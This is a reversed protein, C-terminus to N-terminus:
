TLVFSDIKDYEILVNFHNNVALTNKIYLLNEPCILRSLLISRVVFITLNAWFVFDM